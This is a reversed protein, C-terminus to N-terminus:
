YKLLHYKSRKKLPTTIKMSFIWCVLELSPQSFPYSMKSMKFCQSRRSNNSIKLLLLCNAVSLIFSKCNTELSTFVKLGQSSSVKVVAVRVFALM